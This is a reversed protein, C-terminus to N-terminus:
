APPSNTGDADPRKSAIALQENRSELELEFQSADEVLHHEAKDHDGQRRQDWRRRARTRCDDLAAEVEVLTLQLAVLRDRSQTAERDLREHEAKLQDREARAIKLKEASKRLRTVEARSDELKSRLVLADERLRDNEARAEDRERALRGALDGFAANIAPGADLVYVEGRLPLSASGAGADAAEFGLGMVEVVVAQPTATSLRIFSQESQFPPDLRHAEVPDIPRAQEPVPRMDARDARAPSRSSSGGSGAGAAVRERSKAPVQWQAQAQPHSQIFHGGLGPVLRDLVRAQRATMLAWAQQFERELTEVWRGLEVAKDERGTSPL